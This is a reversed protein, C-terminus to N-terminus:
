HSIAHLLKQFTPFSIDIWQSERITTPSSATLAAIAGAMATRHDGFSSLAAGKLKTPGEIVLTEGESRIRAGMASLNTVMSQIRDTEKVRLEGAGEIITQGLAQTAAVMLIPLEDIVRPVIGPEVSIAKLSSSKVTVDGVPEWDHRVGSVEVSAGMRELLELIGTRTPNLGVGRVTVESNPVIAAAVFFFAASSIDGPVRVERGQLQGGPVLTISQGARTLTAGFYELMRETHDRTVIPQAITSPGRAYLGALLLASKVQASPITLTTRIPSLTGGRITLPLRDIGNPGEIAAGMQILPQTVRAMPRKSLSADGMLAASFPQGALIGLLLRTTTGSNQLDLSSSPAKLGQRGRGEVLLAEGQSLVSVGLAEIIKRTTQVDAAELCNTIRTKGNAIASLLLARHSISKDGPVSIEGRLSNVPSVTLDSM